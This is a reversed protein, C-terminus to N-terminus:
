LRRVKQSKTLPVEKIYSIVAISKKSHTDLFTYFHRLYLLRDDQFQHKGCDSHKDQSLRIKRKRTKQNTVHVHCIFVQGFCMLWGM